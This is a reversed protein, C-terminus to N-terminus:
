QTKSCPLKIAGADAPMVRSMQWASFLIFYVGQIYNYTCVAKHEIHRCAVRTACFGDWM